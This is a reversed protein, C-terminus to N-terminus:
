LLPGLDENFFSLEVGIGAPDKVFVQILNISPVQILQYPIGKIILNSLAAVLGVCSLSIHNLYGQRVGSPCQLNQCISLHLIPQSADHKGAYLWYGDHNLDARPGMTLGIIDIYFHKLKEVLHPPATINFHNLGLVTMVSDSQNAKSRYFPTNATNNDSLVSQTHHIVTKNASKFPTKIKM